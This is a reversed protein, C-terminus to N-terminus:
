SMYSTLRHTVKALDQSGATLNMGSEASRNMTSTCTSSLSPESPDTRVGSWGRHPTPIMVTRAWAAARQCGCLLSLKGWFSCSPCYCCNRVVRQKMCPFYLWKLFILNASCSVLFSCPKSKKFYASLLWQLICVIYHIVQHSKYRLAWRPSWTSFWDALSLQFYSVLYHDFVPLVQCLVLVRDEMNPNWGSFLQCSATPFRVFSFHTHSLHTYVGHNVLILM